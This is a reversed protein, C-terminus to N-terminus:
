NATAADQEKQANATARLDKLADKRAFNFSGDAELSRAIGEAYKVFGISKIYNVM